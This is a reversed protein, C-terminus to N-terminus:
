IHKKSKEGTGSLYKIKNQIIFNLMITVRMYLKILAEHSLIERININCVKEQKRKM